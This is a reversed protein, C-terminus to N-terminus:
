REELNIERVDRNEYISRRDGGRKDQGRTDRMPDTAVIVTIKTSVIMDDELMAYQNGRQFLEEVATM